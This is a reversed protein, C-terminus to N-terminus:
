AVANITDQHDPHPQVPAGFFTGLGPAGAVAAFKRMVAWIAAVAVAIIFMDVVANETAEHKKRGVLYLALVVAGILVPALWAPKTQVQVHSYEDDNM